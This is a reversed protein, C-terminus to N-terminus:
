YKVLRQLCFGVTFLIEGSNPFCTLVRLLPMVFFLPLLLQWLIFIQGRRCIAYAVAVTAPQWNRPLSSRTTPWCPCCAVYELANRCWTVAVAVTATAAHSAAVPSLLFSSSLVLLLPLLHVHSFRVANERAHLHVAIIIFAALQGSTALQLFVPGLGPCRKCRM